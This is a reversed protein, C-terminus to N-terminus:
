HLSLYNQRRQRMIDKHLDIRHHQHERKVFENM